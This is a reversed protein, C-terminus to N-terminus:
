TISHGFNGRLRRPVYSRFNRLGTLKKQLHSFFGRLALPELKDQQVHLLYFLRSIHGKRWILKQAREVDGAGMCECGM